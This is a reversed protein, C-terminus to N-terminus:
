YQVWVLVGSGRDVAVWSTGSLTGVQTNWWTQGVKTPTPTAEQVFNFRPAFDVYQKPAAELAVTPDAPLVLPVLVKRSM